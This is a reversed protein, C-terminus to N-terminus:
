PKPAGLAAIPVRALSSTITQAGPVPRLQGWIEGNVVDVPEQWGMGKPPPADVWYGDKIRVARLTDLSKRYVWWDEGFGASVLNNSIGEVVRVKRAKFAGSTTVFPSTWLELVGSQGLEQWAINVYDTQFFAAWVNPRTHLMEVAGSPHRVALGKFERTFLLEKGFVVPNHDESVDAPRPLLQPKGTYTWTYLVNPAIMDLVMLDKSFQVQQVSAITSGTVAENMDVYRPASSLMEGIKGYVVRSRQGGKPVTDYHVRVSAGSTEGFRADGIVCNTLMDPARWAALPGNLDYVATTNDYTDFMMPLSFLVKGSASSIEMRHGLKAGPVSSKGPVASTDLYVCGAVGNDCDIWPIPPLAQKADKAQLYNCEPPNWAPTEWDAPNPQWGGGDGTKGGTAASAGSNGTGGTGGSVWGGLGGSAGTGSAGGSSADSHPQVDSDGDCGSCSVLAASALAQCARSLAAPAM